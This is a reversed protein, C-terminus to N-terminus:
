GFIAEYYCGEQDARVPSIFLDMAELDDHEIRYMQPPHVPDPGGKFLLAFPSRGSGASTQVRETVEMLELAFSPSSGSALRFNSHLFPEFDAASARDLALM